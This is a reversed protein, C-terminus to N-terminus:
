AEKERFLDAFELAMSRRDLKGNPNRPLAEKWHIAQPVMYNPLNRRIQELLADSPM